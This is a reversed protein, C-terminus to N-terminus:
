RQVDDFVVADLVMHALKTHAEGSLSGSREEVWDVLDLFKMSNLKKVRLTDDSVRETSDPSPM